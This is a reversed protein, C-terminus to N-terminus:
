RFNKKEDYIGITVYWYQGLKVGPAVLIRMKRIERIPPPSSKLHLYARNSIHYARSSFCPLLYACNDCVIWVMYTRHIM